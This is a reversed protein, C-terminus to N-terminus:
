PCEAASRCTTSNPKILRLRVWFNAFGDGAGRALIKAFGDRVCRPVKCITGIPVNPPRKSRMTRLRMETGCVMCRM